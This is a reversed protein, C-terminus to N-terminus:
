CIIQLRSISKASVGHINTYCLESIIKQLQQHCTSIRETLLHGVITTTTTHIEKSIKRTCSKYVKLTKFGRYHM